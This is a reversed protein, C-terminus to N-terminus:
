QVSPDHLCVDCPSISLFCNDQKLKLQKESIAPDCNNM